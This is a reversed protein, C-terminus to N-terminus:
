PMGPLDRHWAAIINGGDEDNSRSRDDDPLGALKVVRAGLGAAHELGLANSHHQNVGIGGGDHGVRLKGIGRVDFRDSRVKDLLDDGPLTGVREQRGQASLGREIRRHGQM